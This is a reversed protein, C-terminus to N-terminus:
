FDGKQIAAWVVSAVVMVVLIAPFLYADVCNWWDAPTWDPDTM